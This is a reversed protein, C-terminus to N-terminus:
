YHRIVEFRELTIDEKEGIGAKHKAIAIQEEIT